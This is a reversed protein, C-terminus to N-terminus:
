CCTLVSISCNSDVVLRTSNSSTAVTANSNRVVKVPGHMRWFAISLVRKELCQSTAKCECGAVSSRLTFMRIRLNDIINWKLLIKSHGGTSLMMESNKSWRLASANSSKGDM